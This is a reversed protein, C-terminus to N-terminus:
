LNNLLFALFFYLFNVSSNAARFLLCKKALFTRIESSLCTNGYKTLSLKSGLNTWGSQIVLPSNSEMLKLRRDGLAILSLNFLTKQELPVKRRPSTWGTGLHLSKCWKSGNKFNAGKWASIMVLWGYLDISCLTLKELM